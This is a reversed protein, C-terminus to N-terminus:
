LGIHEILQGLTFHDCNEWMVIEYNKGNLEFEHGNAHEDLKETDVNRLYEVIAKDREISDDSGDPSTIEGLRTLIDQEEDENVIAELSIGSQNLWGFEQTIAEVLSEESSGGNEARVNRLQEEDVNLIVKVKAM